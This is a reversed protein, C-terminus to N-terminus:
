PCSEERRRTRELYQRQEREFASEVLELASEAVQLTRGGFLVHYSPPESERVVRIVEGGQGAEAVVEGAIALPRQASVYDRSEFRSPVWAEAADVLEEERCGVVIDDDLFHVTYIVQDQLFTGVDRVYGVTGRRVLLRGIEMGPWTGDNRVNRVVRVASDIDFRQPEM